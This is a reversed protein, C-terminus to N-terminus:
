NYHIKGDVLKDPMVRRVEKQLETMWLRMGLQYAQGTRSDYNKEGSTLTEGARLKAIIDIPKDYMQKRSKQSQVNATMICHQKKFALDEESPIFGEENKPLDAAECMRNRRTLKRQHRAEKMEDNEDDSTDSQLCSRKPATYMKTGGREEESESELKESTKVDEREPRFLDSDSEESSIDRDEDSQIWSSSRQMSEKAQLGTSQPVQPARGSPGAILEVTHSAGSPGALLVPEDTTLYGALSVPEGSPLYSVAQWIPIGPLRPLFSATPPCPRPPPLRPVQPVAFIRQTKPAAWCSKDKKQSSQYKGWSLPQFDGDILLSHIPWNNKKQKDTHNIKFCTVQTTSFQCDRCTWLKHTHTTTFITRQEM